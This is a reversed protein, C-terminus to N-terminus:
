RALAIPEEAYSTAPKSAWQDKRLYVCSVLVTVSASFWLLIPHSILGPTGLRISLLWTLVAFLSVSARRYRNIVASVVFLAFPFSLVLDILEM